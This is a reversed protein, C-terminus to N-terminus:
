SVPSERPKARVGARRRHCGAVVVALLAGGWADGPANASRCSCGGSSGSAGGGADATAADRSVAEADLLSRADRPTAADRPATADHGGDAAAIAEHGADVAGGDHGADASAAGDHAGDASGADHSADVGAADGFAADVGADVVGCTAAQVPAVTRYLVGANTSGNEIDAYLKGDCPNVLLTTAEMGDPTGTNWPLWNIGEDTSRYVSPLMSSSAHHGYYLHGNGDRGIKKGQGSNTNQLVIMWSTGAVDSSKWIGCGNPALVLGQSDFNIGRVNGCLAAGINWVPAAQKFTVGHDTSRYIGARETGVWVDGNVPSVALGMAAGGTTIDVPSEQASVGHDTSVWIGSDPSSAWFQGMIINGNAAFATGDYNTAGSYYYMWAIQTWHAGQDTSHYYRGNPPHGYGNPTSTGAVLENTFPSVNISWGYVNPVGTTMQTWHGGADNSKWFGTQRDAVYFIGNNDIALKRINAPPSMSPVQEWIQAHATSATLAVCLAVALGLQPHQLSKTRRRRHMPTETENVHQAFAM